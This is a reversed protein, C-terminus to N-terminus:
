SGPMFTRCSPEQTPDPQVASNGSQAPQAPVTSDLQQHYPM